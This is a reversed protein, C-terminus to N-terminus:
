IAIVLPAFNRDRTLCDIVMALYFPRWDAGRIHNYSQYLKTQRSAFGDPTEEFIERIEACFADPV